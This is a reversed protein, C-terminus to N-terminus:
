AVKSAGRWNAIYLRYKEWRLLALRSAAKLADGEHLLHELLKIILSVRIEGRVIGNPRVSRVAAKRRM